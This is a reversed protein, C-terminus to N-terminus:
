TTRAFFASIPSLTECFPAKSGHHVHLNETEANFDASWFASISVFFGKRKLGDKIKSVACINMTPPWKIYKVSQTRRKKMAVPHAVKYDATRMMYQMCPVASKGCIISYYHTMSAMMSQGDTPM